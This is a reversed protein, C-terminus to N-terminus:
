EEDANVNEGLVMKDSKREIEIVFGGNRGPVKMWAGLRLQQGTGVCLVVGENGKEGREFAAIGNIIGRIIGKTPEANTPTEASLETFPIGVSGLSELKRKDNSVRWIRVQGDWSGSFILDSYPIATLATIHRPQPPCPPNPDPYQEASSESPSPPEQLGHSQPITHVPKKKHISWLCLNGNDSGTVFHEEDIMAICDMSGEEYREIGDKGKRPKKSDSSSGGGGGRFVLQTEDIIKWLRATRDRAGVTVCREGALAAIGVVEDQHGFLTEIYALEDLSWLKVTRDSSCSYLQNTGRRFVLGTVAARHHKFVRLVKLTEADWVVLRHDKGGTAVFKGDHSAAVCIIEDTHGEFDMDNKKGGRVYLLRKPKKAPTFNRTTPPPPYEPLAWKILHRDKTVTYIHPNCVAIATTTTTDMRFLTSSAAPFDLHSAIRRYIRGKEEAVSEKLREAIIDRDIEAADFGGRDDVEERLNDLYQQALRLRKEAATERAFEDDEGDHDSDVIKPADDEDEDESSIDEDRPHRNKSASTGKGQSYTERAKKPKSGAANENRKRKKVSGPTTFFSSM